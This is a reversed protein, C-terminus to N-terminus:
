GISRFILGWGFGGVINVGVFMKGGVERGGIVRGGIVGFGYMFGRGIVFVYGDGEMVKEGGEIKDEDKWLGGLVKGGFGGGWVYVVEEGIMGGVGVCVVVVGLKLVGEDGGVGGVLSVREGEGVRGM